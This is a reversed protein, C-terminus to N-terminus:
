KGGKLERLLIIKRIFFTLGFIIILFISIVMGCTVVWIPIGLAGGLNHGLM